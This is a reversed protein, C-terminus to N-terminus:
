LINNKCKLFLNDWLEACYSPKFNELYANSYSLKTDVAIRLAENFSKQSSVDFGLNNSSIVFEEINGYLPAVFTKGYTLALYLMGSNINEIRPIVIVDAAAVIQGLKEPSLFCKKLRYRNKSLTYNFLIDHLFIFPKLIRKLNPRNSTQIPFPLFYFRYSMLIKTRKNINRFGKLLLKREQSNRISGPVCIICSDQPVKLIERAVEKTYHPMTKLYLPHNIVEHLKKPYLKKFYQLSWFGFHVFVDTKEWITEYLLEDYKSLTKHRKLNHVCHIIPIVNKLSQLFFKLNNLNEKEVIKWNFIAEPWHILLADFGEQYDNICGYEFSAKSYFEIEEFFTNADRKGLVFVKM